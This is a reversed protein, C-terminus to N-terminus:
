IASTVQILEVCKGNEFIFNYVPSPNTTDEATTEEYDKFTDEVTSTQGTYGITIRTDKNVTIQKKSDTLKWVDSIQAQAELHYSNTNTQKILYVAVDSQPDILEYENAIDTSKVTYAVNNLELKGDEVIKQLEDFDLTYQTYITGELTYTNDKNDTAKTIYLVDISDLKKALEEYDNSSVTSSTVEESLKSELDYITNKLELIEKDLENVKETESQKENSITFLFYGMICIAIIAIFLLCTTLRISFSKKPQNEKNEM